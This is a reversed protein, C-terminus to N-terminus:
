CGNKLKSYQLFWMSQFYMQSKINSQLLSKYSMIKVRVAHDTTAEQMSKIQIERQDSQKM